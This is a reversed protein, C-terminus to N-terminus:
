QNRADTPIVKQGPVYQTNTVWVNAQIVIIDSDVVLTGAPLDIIYDADSTIQGGRIQEQVGKNGVYVVRAGYPGILTTTSLTKGSGQNAPVGRRRLYAVEEALHPGFENAIAQLEQPSIIMTNAM